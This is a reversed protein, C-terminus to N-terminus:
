LKTKLDLTQYIGDNEAPSRREQATNTKKFLVDEVITSSEHELPM